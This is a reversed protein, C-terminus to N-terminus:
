FHRFLFLDPGFRFARQDLRLGRVRLRLRLNL